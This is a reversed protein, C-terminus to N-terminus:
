GKETNNKMELKQTRKRSENMKNQLKINKKIWKNNEKDM